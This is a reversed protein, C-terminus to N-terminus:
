RLSLLYAAIDRAQQETVGVDPMATGPNVSQPDLIWQTLNDANNPLMGAIYHRRGFDTLPPGVTGNVGRLGPVVHCGGCGFDAIAQLGAEANGEPLQPPNAPEASGCAAGALALLVAPVLSRLTGPQRLGRIFSV